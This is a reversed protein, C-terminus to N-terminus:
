IQPMAGFFSGLPSFVAPSLGSPVKAMPVSSSIGGSIICHFRHCSIYARPSHGSSGMTVTLDTKARFYYCTWWTLLDILRAIHRERFSLDPQTNGYSWPPDAYVIRYKERPAATTGGRSARAAVTARRAKTAASGTTLSNRDSGSRNETLHYQLTSV